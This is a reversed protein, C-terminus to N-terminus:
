PAVGDFRLRAIDKGDLIQQPDIGLRMRLAEEEALTVGNFPKSLLRGLAKARRQQKARKGRRM